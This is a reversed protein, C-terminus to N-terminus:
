RHFLMCYFKLGSKSEFMKSRVLHFGKREQLAKTHAYNTWGGIIWDLNETNPRYTIRMRVNHMGVSVQDGPKCDLDTVVQKNAGRGIKNTFALADDGTMWGSTEALACAGSFALASFAVALVGGLRFVSM